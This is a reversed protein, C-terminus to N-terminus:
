GHATSEERVLFQEMCERLRRHVRALSVYVANLSRRTAEAIESSSMGQFYRLHLIFRSRETLRGLCHELAVGHPAARDSAREWERDLLDLIDNSLAMPSRRTRRLAELSSLRAASRLWAPFATADEIEGRKKLAVVMVDQLVEETVDADCVISRVYAYLWARHAM